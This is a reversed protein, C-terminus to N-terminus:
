AASAEIAQEGLEQMLEARRQRSIEELSSSDAPDAVRRGPLEVRLAAQALRAILEPQHNLRERITSRFPQEFGGRRLAQGGIRQFGARELLTVRLLGETLKSNIDGLEDPHIRNGIFVYGDCRKALYPRSM